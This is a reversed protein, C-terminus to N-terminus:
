TQLTTGTSHAGEVFGGVSTSEQAGSRWSTSSRKAPTATCHCLRPITIGKSPPRYCEETQHM